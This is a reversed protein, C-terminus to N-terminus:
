KIQEACCMCILQLVGGVLYDANSRGMKSTSCVPHRVEGKQSQLHHEASKFHCKEAMTHLASKAFLADQLEYFSCRTSM